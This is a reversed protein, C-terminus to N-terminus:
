QPQPYGKALEEGEDGPAWIMLVKAGDPGTRHQVKDGPKVFAVMGPGLERPTGNLMHRYSGSVVYLVELSEHSHEPSSYNAPYTREGVALTNAGLQAKGLLLKLNGRPAAPQQWAHGAAFSGACAVLVGVTMWVRM